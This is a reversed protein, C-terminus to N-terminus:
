VSDSLKADDLLSYFLDMDKSHNCLYEAVEVRVEVSLSEIMDHTDYVLGCRKCAEYESSIRQAISGMTDAIQGFCIDNKESITGMTVIFQLALGDIQKRKSSKSNNNTASSSEGVNFSAFDSTSFNTHIPTGNAQDFGTSTANRKAAQKNVENVADSLMLMGSRLFRMSITLVAGERVVLDKLACMLEMEEAYTWVRRSTPVVRKRVRGGINM